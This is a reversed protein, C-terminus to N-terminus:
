QKQMAQLAAAKSPYTGEPAGGFDGKTGSKDIHFTSILWTEDEDGDPDPGVVYIINGVRKAAVVDGADLQIGGAKALKYVLAVTPDQTALSQLRALAQTKFGARGEDKSCNLVMQATDLILKDDSESFDIAAYDFWNREITAADKPSFKKKILASINKPLM